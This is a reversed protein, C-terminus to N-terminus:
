NTIEVDKKLNLSISLEQMKDRYCKELAIIASYDKRQILERSSKM